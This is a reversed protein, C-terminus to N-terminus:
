GTDERASDASICADSMTIYVEDILSRTLAYAHAVLTLCEEFDEEAFKEEAVRLCERIFDWHNKMNM